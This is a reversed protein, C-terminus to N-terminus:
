KIVGEGATVATVIEGETEDFFSKKARSSSLLFAYFFRGSPRKIDTM